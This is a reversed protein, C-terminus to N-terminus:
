VNLITEGGVGQLVDEGVGTIGPTVDAFFITVNLPVEAQLTIDQLLPNTADLTGDANTIQSLIDASDDELNLSYSIDGCNMAKHLYVNGNWVVDQEYNTFYWHQITGNGFDRWFHFLVCRQNLQGITQGLTEGAPLLTEPRVEAWTLKAQILSQSIWKISLKSTTLKALVLPYFPQNAPFAVGLAADLTVQVLAGGADGLLDGGVGSIADGGVGSLPGGSGGVVLVKAFVLTGDPKFTCLYDGAEVYEDTFYLATDGALSPQALYGVALPSVTWFSAGQGSFQDFWALFSAVNVAGNITYQATEGRFPDHPYFTAPQERVFGLQARDVQVTINDASQRFDQKYPLLTPPAPYGAPQPGTLYALASFNLAYNAVSSEVFEIQWNATNPNLFQLDKPKLFGWLVPCVLDSQAPWLPENGPTFISYQSWDAKFAVYLGGSIPAAGYTSWFSVSPWFPMVVTQAELERLALQLGRLGAGYITATTKVTVRLTESYPRRTERKTLSERADTFSDFDTSFGKAWNPSDNILFVPTGNYSTQIM